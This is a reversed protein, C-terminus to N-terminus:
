EEETIVISAYKELMEVTLPERTRMTIFHSLSIISESHYIKYQNCDLFYDTWVEGTSKDLMINASHRWDCRLWEKFERLAEKAGTIKM